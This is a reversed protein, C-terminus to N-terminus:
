NKAQFRAPSKRQRKKGEVFISLGAKRGPSSFRLAKPLTDEQLRELREEEAARADQPAGVPPAGGPEAAEAAVGAERIGHTDWHAWGPPPSVLRAQTIRELEENSQM